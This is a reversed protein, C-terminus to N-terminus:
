VVFALLIIGAISAYKILAYQGNELILAILAWIFVLPIIMGRQQTMFTGLLTLVEIIAVTIIVQTEIVPSIGAETLALAVAIAM